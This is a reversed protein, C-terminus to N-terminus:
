PNSSPVFFPFTFTLPDLREPDNSGRGKGMEKGKEEGFGQDLCLWLAHTNGGNPHHFPNSFKPNNHLDKIHVPFSKGFDFNDLRLLLM